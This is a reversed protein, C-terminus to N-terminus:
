ETDEPMSRQCKVSYQSLLKNGHGPSKLSCIFKLLVASDPFDIFLFGLGDENAATTQREVRTNNYVIEGNRLTICTLYKPTVSSLDRVQFGWVSFARFFPM